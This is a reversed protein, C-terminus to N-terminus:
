LFQIFLAVSNWFVRVVPIWFVYGPFASAWFYVFIETVQWFFPVACLILIAGSSWGRRLTGRLATFFLIPLAIVGMAMAAISFFIRVDPYVLSYAAAAVIVSLPVIGAGTWFLGKICGTKEEPILRIDKLIILAIIVLIFYLPSLYRVDPTMGQQTNMLHILGAYSCFVSGAALVLLVLIKREEAGFRTKKGCLTLSVVLIATVLVVPVIAFVGINGSAPLFFIGSLDLLIGGLSIDPDPLFTAIVLQLPAIGTAHSLSANEVDFVTGESRLFSQVPLIFNKTMLFNNLFFPLAGIVTFLPACLLPIISHGSGSDRVCRFIAYICVAVVVLFIWFALEPRAFALTGCLLFGLPLYWFKRTLIFKVLCLVIPVFCALVLIHDKCHTSWVFYSSSYLCMVTGFFSMSPESFITFLLEYILVASVALLIVNTLVIALIEPFGGAGEVPLSKYWVLNLALTGALVPFMWPTWRYTGIYSYKRFCYQVLLVLVLAALTWLLIILYGFFQGTIDISWYAPLSVLPLFLSYGLINSRYAFYQSIAGDSILSYKGESTAIQHGAHLQNLQDATIFEDNLHISPHALTLGIFLTLFFIFFHVRYRGVITLFHHAVVATDM